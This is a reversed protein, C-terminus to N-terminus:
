RATSKSSPSYVPVVLTTSLTSSMRTPGFPSCSRLPVYATCVRGSASEGHDTWQSGPAIRAAAFGAGFPAPPGARSPCGMICPVFSSMSRTSYLASQPTRACM